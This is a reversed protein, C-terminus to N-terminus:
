LNYRNKISLIGESLFHNKFFFYQIGIYCFLCVVISSFLIMLNQSLVSRMLYVIPIFFLSSFFSNIANNFDLIDEVVFKSKYYFLFLVLLESSINSISAGIHGYAPILFFNLILSFLLGVLVSYTVELDFSAPTLIQVAFITSLGIILVLPSMIKMSLIAPDFNTGSFVRVLEPSLIFLGVSMPIGMFFVFEISKKSINRVQEINKDKIAISVMPLLVASLSTLIPITMKIIRSSASYYGVDKYGTVFGLILTDITSYMSAAFISSFILILPRFHIKFSEYRFFRFDVYKRVLLVNLINNLVSAGVILYLYKILDSQNKVYYYLIVAFIFKVIVSRIAIFKYNELGSYFWDVNVFSFLLIFYSIIFLKKDSEFINVNLIILFYVISMFLMTIFNIFLLTSFVGILSEETARNKAIERAGYVPIGLAAILVFYQSFSNLFQIKGMGEPGLIRSVYPITIIPFIINSVTLTLNYFYNKKFSSM